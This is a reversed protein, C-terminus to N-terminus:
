RGSKAYKVGSAVAIIIFRVKTASNCIMLVVPNHVVCVEPCVDTLNDGSAKRRVTQVFEISICFLKDASPKYIM